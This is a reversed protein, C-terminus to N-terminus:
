AVGLWFICCLWCWSCLDRRSSWQSLISELHLYAAQHVLPLLEVLFFSLPDFILVCTVTSGNNTGGPTVMDIIYFIVLAMQWCQKSKRKCSPDHIYRQHTHVHIAMAWEIALHIVIWVAIVTRTSWRCWRVHLLIWQLIGSKWMLWRHLTTMIWKRKM